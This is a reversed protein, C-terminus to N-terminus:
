FLTKRLNIKHDIKKLRSDIREQYEGRGSLIIDDEYEGKPGEQAITLLKTLQRSLEEWTLDETDEFNGGEITDKLALHWVGKTSCTKRRKGPIRPPNNYNLHSPDEREDNLRKRLSTTPVKKGRITTMKCAVKPTIWM